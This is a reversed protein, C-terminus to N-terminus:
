SKTPGATPKPKGKKKDQKIKKKNKPDKDGMTFRRNRRENM